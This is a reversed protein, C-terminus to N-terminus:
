WPTAARCLLSMREVVKAAAISDRLMEYSDIMFNGVRDIKRGARERAAPQCRRRGVADV